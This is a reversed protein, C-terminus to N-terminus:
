RSLATNYTTLATKLNGLDALTMGSTYVITKYTHAGYDGVTGATSKLAGIVHTAGSTITESGQGTLTESLTNGRFYIESGIKSAGKFGSMSNDGGVSTNGVDDFHHFTIKKTSVSPLFMYMRQNAGNIGGLYDEDFTGYFSMGQSAGLNANTIGTEAYQNTGNTVFGTASHTPSNFFTLSYTGPSKLNWKHASATGGVIPYIAVIKTWLNNAKLDAVLQTIANEQTTTLADGGGEVAAIFAVADDSVQNMMHFMARQANAGLSIFLLIIFLTRM